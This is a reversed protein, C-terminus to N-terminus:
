ALPLTIEQIQCGEQQPLKKGQLVLTVPPQPPDRHRQRKVLVVPPWHVIAARVPPHGICGPFEARFIQTSPKSKQATQIKKKQSLPGRPQREHARAPRWSQSAGKANDPNVRDGWREKAVTKASSSTQNTLKHKTNTHLTQLRWCSYTHVSTLRLM